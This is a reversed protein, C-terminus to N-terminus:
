LFVNRNEEERDGMNSPDKLKSTASIGICFIGGLELVWNMKLGFLDIGLFRDMDHFSAARIVIFGVLFIAGTITLRHERWVDIVFRSAILISLYGSFCVVTIFVVQFTRRQNYWGQQKALERGVEIILSQLDMQKSIGLLLLVIAIIWWLRHHATPDSASYNHARRRACIACLLSTVFYAAVTLWGIVSADGIGIQWNIQTLTFVVEKATMSLQNYFGLRDPPVVLRSVQM